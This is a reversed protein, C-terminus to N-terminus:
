DPKLRHHARAQKAHKPRGIDSSRQPWGSTALVILMAFALLCSGGHVNM